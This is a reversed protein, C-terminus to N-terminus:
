PNFIVISFILVENFTFTKETSVGLVLESVQFMRSGLVEDVTYNADM